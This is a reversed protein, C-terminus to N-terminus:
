ILPSLIRVDNNSNPLVLKVRTSFQIMMSAIIAYIFAIFLNLEPPEAKQKPDVIFEKHDGFDLHYGRFQIASLSCVHNEVQAM